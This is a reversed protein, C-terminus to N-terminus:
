KLVEWQIEENPMVFVEYIKSFEVPSKIKVVRRLRDFSESSSVIEGIYIGKPYRGGTGSTYVKEGVKIEAKELLYGELIGNTRENIIGITSTKLDEFTFNYKDDLISSVIASGNEVSVVKGVLAGVINNSNDRYSTLIIDGMKVGHKKGKNIIFQKFFEDNDLMIINAKIFNNNKNFFEYSDKLYKENSVVYRLDNVEKKLKQNEETLKNVMDRNPKTGISYDIISSISDNVFATARSLPTTIYSVVKSAFSNAKPVFTSIIILLILSLITIYHKKKSKNKKYYLM